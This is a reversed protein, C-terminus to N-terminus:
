LDNITYIYWQDNFQGVKQPHILKGIFSSTSTAPLKQPSEPIQSGLFFDM